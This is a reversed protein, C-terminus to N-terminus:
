SQVRFLRNSVSYLLLSPAVTFQSKRINHCYIHKRIKHISRIFHLCQESVLLPGALPSHRISNPPPNSPRLVRSDAAYGDKFSKFLGVQWSNDRAEIVIRPCRSRVLTFKVTQIVGNDILVSNLKM